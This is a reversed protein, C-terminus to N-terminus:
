RAFFNRYIETAAVSLGAISVCTWAVVAALDRLDTSLRLLRAYHHRAFSILRDKVPGNAIISPIAPKGASADRLQSLATHVSKETRSAVEELRRSEDDTHRALRSWIDIELADALKKHLQTVDASNIVEDVRAPISEAKAAVDTFQLFMAKRESEAGLIEQDVSIRQRLLEKMESNYRGLEGIFEDIRHDTANLLKAIERLEAHQGRLEDLHTRIEARLASAEEAQLTYLAEAM